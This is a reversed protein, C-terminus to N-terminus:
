AARKLAVIPLHKRGWHYRVDLRIRAGCSGAVPAQPSHVRRVGRGGRGRSTDHVNVLRYSGM